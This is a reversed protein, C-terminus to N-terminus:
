VSSGLHPRCRLTATPATLTDAGLPSDAADPRARRSPSSRISATQTPYVRDSIVREGGNAFVELTTRDFIVRLTVRGDRWRVSGAHREPYADHFPTARSKRRDVFVELPEAKVGFLVEEGAANSLRVGAQSWTGPIM